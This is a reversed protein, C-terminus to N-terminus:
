KFRLSSLFQLGGTKRLRSAATGSTVVLELAPRLKGAIDRFEPRDTHVRAGRAAHGMVPRGLVCSGFAAAFDANAWMNEDGGLLLSVLTRPREIRDLAFQPAEPSIPLFPDRWPRPEGDQSPRDDSEDGTWFSFRRTVDGRQVGINYLRSLQKAWDTGDLRQMKGPQAHSFAIEAPFKPYRRWESAGSSM